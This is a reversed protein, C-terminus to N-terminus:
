LGIGPTCPAFSVMGPVTSSGCMVCLRPMHRVHFFFRSVTGATGATGADMGVVMRGPMQVRQPPPHVQVVRVHASHMSSSSFWNHGAFGLAQEFGQKMRVVDVASATPKRPM